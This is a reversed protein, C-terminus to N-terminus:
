PTQLHTAMEVAYLQRAQANVRRDRARCWRALDKPKVTIREVKVGHRRETDQIIAQANRLWAVYSPQLGQPDLRRHAAYDGPTTWAMVFRHQPQPDMIDEM